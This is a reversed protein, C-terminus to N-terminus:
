DAPLDLAFPVDLWSGDEGGTYVTLPLVPDDPNVRLTVALRLRDGPSLQRAIPSLAFTLTVPQDAGVPL